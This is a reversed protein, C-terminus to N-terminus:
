DALGSTVYGHWYCRNPSAPNEPTVRSLDISPTISLTEISEGSMTWRYENGPFSGIPVASANRPNAFWLLISHRGCKPCIFMVGQAGEIDALHYFSPKKWGYHLVIAFKGIFTADLDTLKM